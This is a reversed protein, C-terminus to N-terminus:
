INHSNNNSICLRDKKFNNFSENDIKLTNNSNLLSKLKNMKIIFHSLNNSDSKKNKEEDGEIVLEISSDDSEEIYEEFSSSSISDDKPIKHIEKLQNKLSQLSTLAKKNLTQNEEYFYNKVTNYNSSKTSITRDSNLYDTSNKSSNENLYDRIPFNIIMRDNTTLNNKPSDIKSKNFKFNIRILLSRFFFKDSM